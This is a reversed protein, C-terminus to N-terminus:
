NGLVKWGTLLRTKTSFNAGVQILKRPDHAYKAAYDKAKLQEVAAKVSRNLKFEILYIFRRTKIVMDIRGDTTQVECEVRLGACMSMIHLMMQFHMERRPRDMQDYKFTRLGADFVRMVGDADGEVACDLLQATSFEANVELRNSIALMLNDCFASSVERNPFGLTYIRSEDNFSKVTLYGSQYLLAVPHSYSLNPDMMKEKSAKIGELDRYNFDPYRVISEIVHRSNGTEYWFMDFESAVFSCMVSYPNYIDEGRSAFHYGDYYRKFKTRVEDTTMGAKQGFVEMDLVFYEDMESQSIGCLANFNPDLSIDRLNNLGSFLNLHCYKTVGTLMAFAIDEGRDKICSYLGRLEARVADHLDDDAYQTDLMPKDYEDVLVVVKAGYKDRVESILENFRVSAPGSTLTVGLDRANTDIQYNIIDLTDEIANHSGSALSLYIVPFCRWQTELREIALGKFLERKGEFYAKLTSLLLSKGFRRPRSLFYYDHETVIKYILATKDIYLRNKLRLDEFSQVGVPYRAPTIHSYRSDSM